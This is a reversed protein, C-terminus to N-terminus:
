QLKRPPWIIEIAAASSAASGALVKKDGEEVPVLDISGILGRIVEVAKEPHDQGTIPSPNVTPLPSM